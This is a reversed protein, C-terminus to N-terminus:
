ALSLTFLVHDSIRPTPQSSTKLILTPNKVCAGYDPLLQSEYRKRMSTRCRRSLNTHVVIKARYPQAFGNATAVACGGRERM